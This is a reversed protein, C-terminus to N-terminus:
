DGQAMGYPWGVLSGLDYVKEYGLGCLIQSATAARRGSKCYVIVPTDKSPIKEAASAGNIDDLQFLLADEAHSVIYETEDRVDFLLANQNEMLLNHAEEFTVPIPKHSM